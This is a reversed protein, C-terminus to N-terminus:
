KILYLVMIGFANALFHSVTSIIINNTRKFVLGFLMADVIIFFLDYLVVVANGKTFHCVSFLAATILLAPFLPLRKSLKNQFFGRWAIEEGFAAIILEIALVIIQDFSLFETRGSLHEMFEPVFTVAVTYCAIGSALPALILLDTKWDRLIKPVAKLSMTEKEEPERTIFYFVIGIILTIGSLSFNDDGFLILFGSFSFVTMLLMAILTLSKKNM